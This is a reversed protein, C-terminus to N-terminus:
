LLNNDKYWKIMMKIGSEMSIQPIFKLEQKAKELDYIRNQSLAKVNQVTLIPKKHFFIFIKEEICSLILMIIKPIRLNFIKINLEDEVIKKISFSNISNKGSIIYINGLNGNDICKIFSEVLDTVCINSIYNDKKGIILNIKKSLLKIQTLFSYEHEGIGYVKTPRLIIVPFNNNKFEDMLMKEANFKSVQYPIVPNCKSEETIIKDEVIGMAAISSVYIFKKVSYKKAENVINITGKVNVNDFSIFNEKTPLDNGVKAVMHYVIDINKCCDILSNSDTVDGIIYKVSNGFMKQAKDINRVLLTVEHEKILQPIFYEGIFGTGGTVLIKM